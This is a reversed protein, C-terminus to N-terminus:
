SAASGQTRLNYFDSHNRQSARAVGDINCCERFKSASRHGIHKFQQTGREFLAIGDLTQDAFTAHGGDVERVVDTVVTLDSDLDEARLKSDGNAGVSEQALDLDGRLQLM